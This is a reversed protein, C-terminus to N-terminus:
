GCATITIPSRGTVTVGGWKSAWQQLASLVEDTDHSTDMVLNDRVCTKPGATWAVFADGGWGEAAEAVTVSSGIATEFLQRLGFEGFVNRVIEPGDAKPATVPVPPEGALFRDPHLLQETTTPPNRFADDLRTQGGKDVLARTFAVGATYPFQLQELLVKPANDVAPGGQSSQYRIIALQDSRSLSNIYGSEIRVADGEFVSQFGLPSDDNKKALDPRDLNFWQDQVAHTLEHVLVDRVEPSDSDDGRVVLDKTKSDYFGLVAAGLLAQEAQGIDIGADLLHLAHLVGNSKASEAPDPKTADTIRKTFAADDLLTVKVPLKFKLGRKAEVYKELKAVLADIATQAPATTATTPAVSTSGGAPASTTTTGVVVRRNVDTTGHHVVVGAIGAILLLALAVAVIRERM